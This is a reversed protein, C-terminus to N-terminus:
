FLFCVRVILNAPSSIKEAGLQDRVFWVVFERTHRNVTAFTSQEFIRRLYQNDKIETTM